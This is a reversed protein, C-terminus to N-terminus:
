WAPTWEDDEVLEPHAAHLAAIAERQFTGEAGRTVFACYNSYQPKGHGNLVPSGDSHVLPKGPLSLWWRDDFRHVACDRICLGVETLTFDAFGRLSAGKRLPRFKEVKINM